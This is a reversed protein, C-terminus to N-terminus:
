AWVVRKKQLNFKRWVMQKWVCERIGSVNENWRTRSEELFQIAVYQIESEGRVCWLSWSRLGGKCESKLLRTEKHSKDASCAINSFYEVTWWWMVLFYFDFFEVKQIVGKFCSTKKEIRITKKLCFCFGKSCYLQLMATLSGDKLQCQNTHLHHDMVLLLGWCFERGGWAGYVIWVRRESIWFRYKLSQWRELIVFVIILWRMSGGNCLSWSIRGWGLFQRNKIRGKKSM